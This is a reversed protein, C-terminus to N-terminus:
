GAAGKHDAWSRVRIPNLSFKIRIMFYYFTIYLRDVVFPAEEKVTTAWVVHDVSEM